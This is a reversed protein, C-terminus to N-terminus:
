PRSRGEGIEQEEGGAPVRLEDGHAADAVVDPEARRDVVRQALGEVLDRLEEAQGIRAARLDLALRGVAIGSRKASGRGM